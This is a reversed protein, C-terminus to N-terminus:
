SAQRRLLGENLALAVAAAKSHVHLKGYINQIHFAVTNVSVGLKRAATKYSHGEVMLSLMRLEHPTLDYPPEQSPQNGARARIAGLVGDKEDCVTMLVLNATACCDLLVAMGNEAILANLQQNDKYEDPEVSFVAVLNLAKRGTGLRM